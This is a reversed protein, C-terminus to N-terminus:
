EKAYSQSENGVAQNELLELVFCLTSLRNLYRLLEPNELEGDLFLRTVWREARRVITRALSIAAGAHSDGPLIFEELVEVKARIEDIKNELWVIRKEDIMRFQAAHEPQAATEAMLHYLDRQVELLISGTLSSQAVARSVGLAAMAEDLTGITEIRPTHKPVRGAGLIGTYGDDGNRTYFEPMRDIIVETM